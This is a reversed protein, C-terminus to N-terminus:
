RVRTLRAHELVLTKNGVDKFAIVAKANMGPTLALVKGVGFQPHRVTCGM